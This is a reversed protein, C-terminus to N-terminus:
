RRGRRSAYNWVIFFAAMGITQLWPGQDIIGTGVVFATGFFVITDFDSM